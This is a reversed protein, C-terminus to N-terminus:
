GNFEGTIGALEASVAALSEANDHLMEYLTALKLEFDDVQDPSLIGHTEAIASSVRLEAYDAHSELHRDILGDVRAKMGSKVRDSTM